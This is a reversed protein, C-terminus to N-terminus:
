SYSLIFDHFQQQAIKAQPTFFFSFHSGYEIWSREKHQSALQEYAIVGYHFKVEADHTGHVILAPCTIQEFPYWKTKSGIDLDNRTGLERPRYNSMSYMLEAFLDLSEHNHLIEEVTANLRKSDLFHEAHLLHKIVMEPFYIMSEKTMWMGFDTMFLAQAVKSIQEALTYEGSIADVAIIAQTKQPHRLAFSYLSMGGASFGVVIAEPINLYDLLEAVLDAQQEATKCNGLQTGLYGPRSPCIMQYGTPIFRRFLIVSQDYGGVGGHLFLIPKGNGYTVYELAGSALNVTQPTPLNLPTDLKNRLFIRSEMMCFRELSKNQM